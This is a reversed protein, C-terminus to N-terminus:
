MNVVNNYLLNNRLYELIIYKNKKESNVDSVFRGGEIVKM